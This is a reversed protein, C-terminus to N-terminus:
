RKRCSAPHTVPQWDTFVDLRKGYAGALSRSVPSNANGPADGETFIYVEVRSAVWLQKPQGNQKHERGVMGFPSLKMAEKFQM